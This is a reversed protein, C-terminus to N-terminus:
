RNRNEIEELRREVEELRRKLPGRPNKSLKRTLESRLTRLVEVEATLLLKALPPRNLRPARYHELLALGIHWVAAIAVVIPLLGL